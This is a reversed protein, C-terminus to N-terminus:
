FLTSIVMILYLCILLDGFVIKAANIYHHLRRKIWTCLHGKSKQLKGFDYDYKSRQHGINEM